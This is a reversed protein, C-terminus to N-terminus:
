YHLASFNVNALAAAHQDFLDGMVLMSENPADNILMAIRNTDAFKNEEM